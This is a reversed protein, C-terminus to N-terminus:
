MKLHIEFQFADNVLYSVTVSEASMESSYKHPIHWQVIDDFTIKFFVSTSNFNM